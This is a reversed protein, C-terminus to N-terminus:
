LDVWPVKRESQLFLNQLFLRWATADEAALMGNAKMLANNVDVHRKLTLVAVDAAPPVVVAGVGDGVGDIARLAPPLARRQGAVGLVILHVDRQVQSLYSM